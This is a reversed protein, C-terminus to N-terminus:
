FCVTFAHYKSDRQRSKKFFCPYIIRPLHVIKLEVPRLKTVHGSPMHQLALHAKRVCCGFWQEACTLGIGVKTKREEASEDKYKILEELKYFTSIRKSGM